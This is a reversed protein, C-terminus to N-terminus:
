FFLQGVNMSYFHPLAMAVCKVFSKFHDGAWGLIARSGNAAKKFVSRILRSEGFALDTGVNFMKKLWM